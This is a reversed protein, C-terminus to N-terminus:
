FPRFITSSTVSQADQSSSTPVPPPSASAPSTLTSTQAAPSPPPQTPSGYVGQHLPSYANNYASQTHVSPQYSTIRQNVNLTDYHYGSPSAYSRSAASSQLSFPYSYPLNSGYLNALYKSSPSQSYGARYGGPGYADRSLSNGYGFSLDQPQGYMQLMSSQSLTQTSFQTSSSMERFRDSQEMPGQFFSPKPSQPLNIMSASTGTPSLDQPQRYMQLMRSESLTQTPFQTSSSMERFRESKEMPGQFFSPKPSQPLNIMSTTARTPKYQSQSRTTQDPSQFFDSSEPSRSFLQLPGQFSIDNPSQSLNAPQVPTKLPKSPPDNRALNTFKTLSKLPSESSQSQSKQPECKLKSNDESLGLSSKSPSTMDKFSEQLEDIDSNDVHQGPSLLGHTDPVSQTSKRSKKNRPSKTPTLLYPFSKERSFDIPVGPSSQTAITRTNHKDNPKIPTWLSESFVDHANQDYLSRRIAENLDADEKSAREIGKQSVNSFDTNSSKRQNKGWNKVEYDPVIKIDENAFSGQIREYGKKALERDFIIGNELLKSAIDENEQSDRVVVHATEAKKNDFKVGNESLKSVIPDSSKRANRMRVDKIINQFTEGMHELNDPVKNKFYTQLIATDEVLDTMKPRVGMLTDVSYREPNSELLTSKIAEPFSRAVANTAEKYKAMEDELNQADRKLQKLKAKQSDYHKKEDPHFKKELQGCQKASECTANPCRPKQHRGKIHCNGCVTGITDSDNPPRYDDDLKNVVLTKARIEANKIDLQVQFEKIKKEMPSQFTFPHTLKNDEKSSPRNNDHATFNLREAQLLVSKLIGQESRFSIEM